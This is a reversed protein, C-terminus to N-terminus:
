IFLQLNKLTFNEKKIMLLFPPGTFKFKFKKSFFIVDKDENVELYSKANGKIIFTPLLGCYPHGLEIEIFNTKM